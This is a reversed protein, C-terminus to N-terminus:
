VPGVLRLFSLVSSRLHPPPFSKRSNKEKRQRCGPRVKLLHVSYFLPDCLIDDVDSAFSFKDACLFSSPPLSFPEQKDSLETTRHVFFFPQLEYAQRTRNRTQHASTVLLPSSNLYLPLLPYSYAGATELSLCGAFPFACATGEAGLQRAPFNLFTINLIKWSPSSLLSV